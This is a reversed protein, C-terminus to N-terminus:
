YSVDFDLIDARIVQGPYTTISWFCNHRNRYHDDPYNPSAIELRGNHDSLNVALPISGESCEGLM